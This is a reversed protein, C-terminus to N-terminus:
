GDLYDKKTESNESKDDNEEKEYDEDFENNYIFYIFCQGHPVGNKTEGEM